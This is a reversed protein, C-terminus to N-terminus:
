VSGPCFFPLKVDDGVDVFRVRVRSDVVPEHTFGTLRTVLRIGEDLRVMALSYPIESEWAQSMARHISTYTELTGTGKAERWDFHDSGCAFCFKRPFWNISNCKACYQLLFLGKQCGEWFPRSEPTQQPLPRKDVSM